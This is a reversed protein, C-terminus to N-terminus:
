GWSKFKISPLVHVPVLDHVNAIGFWHCFVWYRMGCGVLLIQISGQVRLGQLVGSSGLRLGRAGGAEVGGQEVAKKM